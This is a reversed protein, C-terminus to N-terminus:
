AWHHQAAMRRVQVVDGLPEDMFLRGRAFVLAAASEAEVALVLPQRAVAPGRGFVLAAASEAEAASIPQKAVTRVSIGRAGWAHLWEFVLDCMLLAFADDDTVRDPYRAALFEADAIELQGRLELHHQAGAGEAARPTRKRPKNM